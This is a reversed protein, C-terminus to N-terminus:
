LFLFSNLICPFFDKLGDGNLTSIELFEIRENRCLDEILDNKITKELDSKNAILFPTCPSFIFDRAQDLWFALNDFSNSNNLDFMLFLASCDKYFAKIIKEYKEEGPSEWLFISYKKRKFETEITTIEYGNTSKLHISFENYKLRYILSSKGM